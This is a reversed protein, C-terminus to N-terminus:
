RGAEDSDGRRITNRLELANRWNFEQGKFLASVRRPIRPNLGCRRLAGSRRAPRSVASPVATGAFMMSSNRRSMARSANSRSCIL